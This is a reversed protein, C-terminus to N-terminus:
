MMISVNYHIMAGPIYLAVDCDKGQCQMDEVPNGYDAMILVGKAGSDQMSLVQFDHM